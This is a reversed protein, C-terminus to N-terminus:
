DREVSDDITLYSNGEFLEIGKKHNRAWGHVVHKLIGM